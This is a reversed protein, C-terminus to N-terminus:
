ARCSFDSGDVDSPVTDSDNIYELAKHIRLYKQYKRNLMAHNEPDPKYEKNVRVYGDSIKEFPGTHHDAYMALLAIGFAPGIGGNLKEVVIGLVDSLTQLWLDSNSGGGTVKISGYRELSIQMKEILERVAFSLGEIVAYYMDTKTTDNGLNIFAGRLNPDSYITKDGGLHPYFLLNEKRGKACNINKELEELNSIGLIDKAWWNVTRGNSQIVGQVLCIFKRGDVSVLIRKGPADEPIDDTPIVIVGSTGLSLVPYGGELCGTSVSTAANDGTGAIVRADSRFGFRRAIDPRVRGVFESSGYLAPYASESLGIYKRVQESWVHSGIDMLCSTSAECYNTVCKGTFRMVLYDPGILFKYIRSFCEPEYERIWCLAAAPSGTSITRSLQKGGSFGSFVRKLSGIMEKTRIDNWMIVPRISELREDVIALSHMQGTIGIVSVCEANQDKFIRHLCEETSQFWIEPDIEIHGEKLESVDYKECSQAILEKQSNMLVVKVASTGIDIGLYTRDSDAMNM